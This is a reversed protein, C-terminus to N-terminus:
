VYFFVVFILNELLEFCLLFDIYYFSMRIYTGLVQGFPKVSHASMKQPFGPTDRPTIYALFCKFNTKEFFNGRAVSPVEPLM